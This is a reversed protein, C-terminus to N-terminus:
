HNAPPIPEATRSEASSAACTPEGEPFSVVPFPDPDFPGDGTSGGCREGLLRCGNTQNCDKFGSSANACCYTLWGCRECKNCPWPGASVLKPVSFLGLALFFLISSRTVPLRGTLM